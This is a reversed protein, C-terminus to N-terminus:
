SKLRDLIKELLANILEQMEGNSAKEIIIAVVTQLLTELVWGGVGMQATMPQEDTQQSMVAHLEKCCEAFEQLEPTAGFVPQDNRSVLLDFIYAQVHSEHAWFELSVMKGEKALRIMEKLCDIPPDHLQDSHM